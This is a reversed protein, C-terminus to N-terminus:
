DVLNLRGMAQKIFLKRISSVNQLGQYGYKILKSNLNNQNEYLMNIMSTFGLYAFSEVMRRSYYIRNFIESEFTHQDILKHLTQIDKIGLNWGQGAVPHISKLTDGIYIFNKNFKTLYPIVPFTFMEKDFSMEGHSLYFSKNILSKIKVFSTNKNTSFIFTSKKNNSSPCPLVALPGEKNFIEYAIGDHDKKHKFFGVYSYDENDFIIKKQKSDSIIKKGISLIIKKFSYNKNNISISTNPKLNDINIKINTELLKFNKLKQLIIKHLEANYIVNGMIEKDNKFILPSPNIYDKIVIKKIKQPETKINSWVGLQLLFEKSNANVALTRRDSQIERKNDIVLVKLKRKHLSLATLSGILGGGVILFDYNLIKNKM